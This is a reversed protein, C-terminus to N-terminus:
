ETQPSPRLPSTTSDRPSAPTWCRSKPWATERRTLNQGWALLTHILYLNELLSGYAPLSSPPIRADNGIRGRVPEGSSQAALLRLLEPLQSLHPLRSVEVADRSLVRNLYNSFWTRRRM